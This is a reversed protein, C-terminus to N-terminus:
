REESWATGSRRWITVSNNATGIALTDGSLAISRGFVLHETSPPAIESQYAWGTGDNSYISVTNSHCGPTAQCAPAEGVALTTGDLALAAGFTMEAPATPSRLVGGPTALLAAAQTAPHERAADAANSGCAAACLGLTAARLVVAKMGM